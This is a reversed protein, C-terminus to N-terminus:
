CNILSRHVRQHSTMMSSVADQTVCCVCPQSKHIEYVVFLVPRCNNSLMDRTLAAVKTVSYTRYESDSSKAKRYTISLEMTGASFKFRMMAAEKDTCRIGLVKSQPVQIDNVQESGTPPSRPVCSRSARREHPQPSLTFWCGAVGEREKDTHEAEMGDLCRRAAPPLSAYDSTWFM